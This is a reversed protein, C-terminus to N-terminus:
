SVSVLEDIANGRVPKRELDSDEESATFVDRADPNTEWDPIGGTAIFEERFMTFDPKKKTAWEKEEPNFGDKPISCMHHLLTLYRSKESLDKWREEFIELIYAKDIWVSWPFGVTRLKAAATGKKERIIVSGILSSDFGEFVNPFLGVIEDMMDNIRGDVEFDEFKKM